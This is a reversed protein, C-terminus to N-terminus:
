SGLELWRKMATSGGRCGRGTTMIGHLLLKEAASQMENQQLQQQQQKQRHEVSKNAIWFPFSERHKHTSEFFVSIIEIM